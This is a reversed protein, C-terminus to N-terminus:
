RAGGGEDEDGNGFFMEDLSSLGSTLSSDLSAAVALPTDQLKDWLKLCAEALGHEKAMGYLELITEKFEGFSLRVMYEQMEEPMLKYVGTNELSNPKEAIYPLYPVWDISKLPKDKKGEKKESYLRKHTVIPNGQEDSIEVYTSTIKLHVKKLAYGPSTSYIRKNNCLRVLGTKDARATDYSATDFPVTPLPILKDKDEEHLLSIPVQREYHERGNRKDCEELLHRNYEEIDDFEPKPVLLNARTTNVNREVSGKEWGARPNCFRPRFGHHAVFFEFRKTMERRGPRMVVMTSANDFAIVRPVGGVHRFISVMAEQLCEENEGPKLQAYAANSYPFTIVLFKGTHWVGEECYRAEGFDVQAEAPSHELPLYGGEGLAMLQKLEAKKMSFYDCVTRYSGTYGEECIIDFTRKATLKQKSTDKLDDELLGDIRGTYPTLVGVRRRPEKPKPVNLDEIRLYKRVTPPSIGLNKGIETNSMGERCLKKAAIVKNMDVKNM